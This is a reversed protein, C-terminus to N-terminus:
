LTEFEECCFARDAHWKEESGNELLTCRMSGSNDMGLILPLGLTGRLYKM